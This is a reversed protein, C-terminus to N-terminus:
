KAEEWTDGYNGSTTFKVPTVLRHQTEMIYQMRALGEEAHEERVLAAIEDHVQNFIVGGWSRFQADQDLYLMVMQVIDAASGQIPSNVAQRLAQARRAPNGSTSGAPHRYRGMMTRVYGFERVTGQQREIMRGIGPFVTHKVSTILPKAEQPTTVVGTAETIQYALKTPGIGYIMGFIASKAASRLAKLKKDAAGLAELVKPFLEHNVVEDDSMRLALGSLERVPRILDDRKHHPVEHLCVDLFPVMEREQAAFERLRQIRPSLDRDSAQKADYIHEYTMGEVADAYAEAAAYCHLDMGDNIAQIMKECQSVVAVIRLELQSYDACLVKWGDPARFSHRISIEKEIPQYDPRALEIDAEEETLGWEEIMEERSPVYVVPPPLIVRLSRAPLNQMNPDRSRLRGTTTVPRFSGHLRDTRDFRRTLIGTVFTGVIKSMKGYELLRAIGPADHKVLLKKLTDSSMSAEGGETRTTIPLGFGVRKGRDYDQHYLVQLQATSNPNIEKPEGGLRVLAENVEEQFERLKAQAAQRLPEEISELYGWNIPAGTVQMRQLLSLYPVDLMQHWDWMTLEPGPDVEGHEACVVKGRVGKGYAPSNCVSCAHVWPYQETLEKGLLCVGLHAWADRTCYDLTKIPDLQMANPIGGKNIVDDFDNMPLDLYHRVRAKLGKQGYTEEGEEDFLCWLKMGDAWCETLHVPKDWGLHFRTHGYIANWDYIVNFGCHRHQTRVLMDMIRPTNEETLFLAARRRRDAICVVYVQVGLGDFDLGSTETDFGIPDDGAEIYECFELVDEMDQIHESDPIDASATFRM